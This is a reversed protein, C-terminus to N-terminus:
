PDFPIIGKLEDLLETTVREPDTHLMGHVVRHGVGGLTKFWPQLEMWDMLFDIATAHEEIEVKIRTPLSDVGQDVTLSAADSGIREIKGQLLRMPPRRAEFVAFRISSSGGNIALVNPM